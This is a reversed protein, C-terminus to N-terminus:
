FTKKERRRRKNHESASNAYINFVCPAATCIKIIIIIRPHNIIIQITYVCKTTNDAAVMFFCIVKKKKRITFEKQSSSFVFM